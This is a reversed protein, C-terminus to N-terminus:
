PATVMGDATTNELVNAAPNALVVRSLSITSAKTAVVEFTVTALTSDGASEGALSM